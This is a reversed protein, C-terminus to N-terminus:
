HGDPRRAHRQRSHQSLRTPISAPANRETATRSAESAASNTRCRRPVTSQVADTRVLLESVSGTVRTSM